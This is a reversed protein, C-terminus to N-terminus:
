NELFGNASRPIPRIVSATAFAKSFATNLRGGGPLGYRSLLESKVERLIRREAEAAELGLDLIRGAVTHVEAVMMAKTKPSRTSNEFYVMIAACRAITEQVQRETAM